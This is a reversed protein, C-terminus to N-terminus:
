KEKRRSNKRQRERTHACKENSFPAFPSLTRHETHSKTTFPPSLWGTLRGTVAIEHCGGFWMLHRGRFEVVCVPDSVQPCSIDLDRSNFSKMHCKYPSIGHCNIPIKVFSWNKKLSNPCVKLYWLFCSFTQVKYQAHRQGAENMVHVPDDCLANDRVYNLHLAWYRHTHYQVPWLVPM